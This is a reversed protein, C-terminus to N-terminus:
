IELNDDKVKNDFGSVLDIYYKGESLKFVIQRSAMLKQLDIEYKGPKVIRITEIDLIVPSENSKLIIKQTHNKLEISNEKKEKLEKNNKIEKKDKKKDRVYLFLKSSCSCGTIIEMSKDNYVNGCRLCRHPM